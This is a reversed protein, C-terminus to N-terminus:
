NELQLDQLKLCLFGLGEERCGGERRGSQLMPTPLLWDEPDAEPPVPANMHATIAPPPQPLTPLPNNQRPRRPPNQQHRQLSPMTAPGKGVGSQSHSRLPSPRTTTTDLVCKPM